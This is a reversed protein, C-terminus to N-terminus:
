GSDQCGPAGTRPGPVAVETAASPERPFARGPKINPNVSYTTSVPGNRAAVNVASCVSTAFGPVGAMM